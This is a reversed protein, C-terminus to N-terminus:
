DAILSYYLFTNAIHGPSISYIEYRPAGDHGKKAMELFLGLAICDAALTAQHDLLRSVTQFPHPPEANLLAAEGLTRTFFSGGMPPVEM